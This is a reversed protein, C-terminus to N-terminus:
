ALSIIKIGSQFLLLDVIIDTKTTIIIIFLYQKNDSQGVLKM